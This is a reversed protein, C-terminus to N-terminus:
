KDEIEEMMLITGQRGQNKSVVPMCTVRCRIAKGKRNIADLTVEEHDSERTLCARIAVKMKEVPLGIDLNM